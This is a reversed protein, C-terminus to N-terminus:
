EPHAAAYDISKRQVPGPPHKEVPAAIASVDAGVQAAILRLVQDHALAQEFSNHSAVVLWNAVVLDYASQDQQQAELQELRARQEEELQDVRAWTTWLGAVCLVAALGASVLWGLFARDVVRVPVPGAQSRASALEDRVAGFLQDVGDAVADAISSKLGEDLHVGAGRHYTKDLQEVLGLAIAGSRTRTRPQTDEQAQGVRAAYVM